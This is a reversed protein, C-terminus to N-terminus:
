YFNKASVFLDNRPITIEFVPEPNLNLSTSSVPLVLATGSVIHCM